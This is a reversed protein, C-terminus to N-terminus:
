SIFGAGDGGHLLEWHGRRSSGFQSKMVANYVGKLFRTLVQNYETM